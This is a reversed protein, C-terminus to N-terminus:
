QKNILTVDDIEPTHSAKKYLNVLSAVVNYGGIIWLKYSDSIPLYLVSPILGANLLILINAIDSVIKNAPKRWNNILNM